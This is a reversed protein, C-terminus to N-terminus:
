RLCRSRRGVSVELDIECGAGIASQDSEEDRYQDPARELALPMTCELEDIVKAPAPILRLPGTSYAVLRLMTPAFGDKELVGLM